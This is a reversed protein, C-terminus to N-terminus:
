KLLSQIKQQIEAIPALKGIGAQGCALEGEHPNVIHHGLSKLTEINKQVLLNHWMDTNMAPAWLIPCTVSLLITSLADDALGHAAKAIINATAPVIALLQAQDKLLIHTPIGAQDPQWLNTIVTNKSLTQLTLPTIFRTANETMIVTSPYGDKHLASVLDAAKYAAIGGSIGILIHKSNSM